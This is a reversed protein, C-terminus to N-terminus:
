KILSYSLPQGKLLTWLTRTMDTPEKMLILYDIEYIGVQDLGRFIWVQHYCVTPFVQLIPMKSDHPVGFQDV